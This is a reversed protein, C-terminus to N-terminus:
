TAAGNAYRRFIAVANQGGFGFANAMATDVRTHRAVHPVYDLDCLPDPTELNITPPVIGDRIALICTLASIAGAAGFLHGIMSKPSSIPVHYAQDGFTTKIAATEAPDNLPTATGHACIYDIDRPALHSRALAMSMARAAGAGDPQPGSVHYADATMAGGLVECYIRANRARAHDERELIVVGAGEGLVCGDRDKDFPRSARQPQDNRRSLARMKAFAVLPIGMLAEAAGTVMVDVEGLSLLRYADVFAQVGSACAAASALVPGEIGYAISVQCAAMNPAVMVITFPSVHAPGGTHYNITECSLTHMGGGGTNLMVGVSYRREPTITLDADRLAQGAAAVALQAFRDMHRAAKAGMHDRADFDQVEAAIHVDLDRTDFRSIRDVGSVGQRLNAWFQEYGLGLPTMAGLGTVVVRHM